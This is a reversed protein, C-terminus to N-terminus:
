RYQELVVPLWATGSFDHRSRNVVEFMLAREQWAYNREIHGAHSHLAVTISYSGPGINLPLHFSWSLQAGAPLDYRVQDLQRTNTGFVDQGYRDKILFGLVLDPIASSCQAQIDLRVHQGVDVVELPRGDEACLSLGTFVVEGTGSLLAASDDQGHAIQQDQHDALMANYFDMVQDPPGQMAIRGESLLIARSCISQIAQKDHSVLLLTTGQRAFQRIREFSKHQFYADGVSLAEDVILIEPREATAVSFALRMQMGSSYVRVPQEFYDGLESFAKLEEVFTDIRAHSYGMLAAVHYVNQRGSLDPNFGMGLELIAAVRGQVQVRGTTPKLTGTIIKLLTSKGAGNLGILGVAEGPELTFDIDRLVWSRETSRIPVGLWSLIRQSERRYHQFAKGIGEVRLAWSM